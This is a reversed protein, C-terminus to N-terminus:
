RRLPTEGHLCESPNSEDDRDRCNGDCGAARFARLREKLTAVGLEILAVDVGGHELVRFATALSAM